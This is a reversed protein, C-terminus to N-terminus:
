AFSLSNKPQSMADIEDLDSRFNPWFLTAHRLKIEAALSPNQQEHWLLYTEGVLATLDPKPGDDGREGGEGHRDETM